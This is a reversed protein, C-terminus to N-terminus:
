RVARDRELNPSLGSSSGDGSIDIITRHGELHNEEILKLSFWIAGGLGTFGTLLRRMAQVKAAFTAASGEDGLRTWDVAVLLMRNGSWQVATVAIDAGGCSEIAEVVEPHRFAEAMGQKQLEFEFADVSSSTDMALVLELEIQKQQAQASLSRAFWPSALLVVLTFAALTKIPIAM